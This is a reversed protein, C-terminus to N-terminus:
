RCRNVGLAPQDVQVAGVHVGEDAQAPRAVEAGVNAVEIQVLGEADRV